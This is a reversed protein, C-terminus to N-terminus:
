ASSPMRSLTADRPSPSTYLLCDKPLNGKIYPGRWRSPNPLNAPAQVLDNLSTPLRRVDVSYGSVCTELRGIQSRASDKLANKQANGVFFGVSSALIVLIVLVLMLEILTLGKRNRRSHKQMEKGERLQPTQLGFTNSQDIRENSRITFWPM